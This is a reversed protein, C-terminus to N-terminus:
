YEGHEARFAGPPWEKRWGVESVAVLERRLVQRGGLTDVPPLRSGLGVSAIDAAGELESQPIRGRSPRNNLVASRLRPLRTAAIMQPRLM